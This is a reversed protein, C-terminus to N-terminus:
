LCVLGRVELPEVTEQVSMGSTVLDEVILCSQGAEFAGEIAKKTGYDKVEKSRRSSTPAHTPTPAHARAHTPTPAHSRLPLQRGRGGEKGGGGRWCSFARAAWGLAAWGLVVCRRMLMPTGHLLSMCTAIPLATYPVGCMVDFPAAKVRDWMVEAVRHLVDPQTPAIPLTLPHPPHLPCHTCAHVPPRACAPWTAVGVLM